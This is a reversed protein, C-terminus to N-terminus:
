KIINYECWKRGDEIIKESVFSLKPEINFQRVGEYIKEPLINLIINDILGQELSSTNLSSGSSLLINEGLGFAEKPSRAIIYAPKIKFNLETTVVVRKIELEELQKILKEPYNQIAEYTKRGIVLIDNRKCLSIFDAWLEDPIFDEDGNKRAIYGDASVVNYLTVMCFTYWLLVLFDKGILPLNGLFYAPHSDPIDGEVLLEDDSM